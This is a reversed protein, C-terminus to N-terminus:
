KDRDDQEQRAEKEAREKVREEQRKWHGGEEYDKKIGLASRFRDDQKIKADALEHVQHMKLNKRSPAKGGSGGRESEATLKKRLADTQEEIEEEDVRCFWNM